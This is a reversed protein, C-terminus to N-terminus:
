TGLKGCCLDGALPPNREVWDLAIRLDQTGDIGASIGVAGARAVGSQEVAQYPGSILSRKWVTLGVVAVFDNRNNGQKDSGFPLPM